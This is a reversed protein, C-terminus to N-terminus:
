KEGIPGLNEMSPTPKRVLSSAKPTNQLVFGLHHACHMCHFRTWEGRRLPGLRPHAPFPGNSASFRQIAASLSQAEASTDVTRPPVLTPHSAHQKEPFFGSRFFRRYAIGQVRTPESTDPEGEMSLAIGATLHHLIQGLSWRGVTTHGELLHEVDPMVEDLRAFTLDRRQSMM